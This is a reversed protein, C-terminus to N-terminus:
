PAAHNATRGRLLSMVATSAFQPFTGVADGQITRGAAAARVQREHLAYCSGATCTSLATLDNNRPFQASDVVTVRGLARNERPLASLECCQPQGSAGPRYCVYIVRVHVLAPGKLELSAACRRVDRGDTAPDTYVIASDEPGGILYDTPSEVVHVLHM